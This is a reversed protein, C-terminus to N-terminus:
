DYVALSILKDANEATMKTLNRECIRKRDNELKESFIEEIQLKNESNRCIYRKM